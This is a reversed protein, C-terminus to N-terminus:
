HGKLLMPLTSWAVPWTYYQEFQQRAAGAIQKALSSNTLLLHVKSAFDAPSDGILWHIDPHGELGEAGIATTVVPTNAAWAELIKLRTGSGSRLPVIAVEAKALHEIADEVPGILEIRQDGAVISRVAQPNRGILRWAIEPFQRRILPWIEAHFYRIAQINPLYELNGSFVVAHERRTQPVPHLPLTNPYVTLLEEPVLSALHSADNRSTVLIHHYAPVYTRELARYSAAFRRHAWRAPGTENMACTTHWRSEINHLDLILQDAHPRLRAAHPACWFHEVIAVDYHQGQIWASLTPGLSQFRDLLPPMGRRLRDLNRYARAATSSRHSPLTFAHLRRFRDPPFAALPDPAGPQRCTFVDTAFHQSVYELLSATRLPGGGIVPYPAEPALVLASPRKIGAAM